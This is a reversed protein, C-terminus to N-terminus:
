GICIQCRHRWTWSKAWLVTWLQRRPRILLLPSSLSSRASSCFISTTSELAGSDRLTLAPIRLSILTKSHLPLVRTFFKDALINTGANLFHIKKIGTTSALYDVVGEDAQAV